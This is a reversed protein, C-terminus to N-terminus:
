INKILPLVIYTNEIYHFVRQFSANGRKGVINEVKGSAFQVVLDVISHAFTELKSLDFKKVDPLRKQLLCKLLM